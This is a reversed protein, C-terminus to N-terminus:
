RNCVKITKLTVGVLEIRGQELLHRVPPSIIATALFDVSRTGSIEAEKCQDRWSTSPSRSRRSNPNIFSIDVGHRYFRGNNNIKCAIQLVSGSAICTSHVLHTM